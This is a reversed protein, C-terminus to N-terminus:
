CEPIYCDYCVMFIFVTSRNHMTLSLSASLSIEYYSLFEKMGVFAAGKFYSYNIELKLSKM